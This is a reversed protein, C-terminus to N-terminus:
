SSISKNLRKSVNKFDHVEVVEKSGNGVRFIETLDDPDIEMVSNTEIGDVVAKYEHDYVLWYIEMLVPRFQRPESFSDFRLPLLALALHRGKSFM